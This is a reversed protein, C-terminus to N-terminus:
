DDDRDHDRGDASSGHPVTSPVTAAPATTTPAPTLPTIVTPTTTTTAPKTTTTSRTTTSRAPPASLTSSLDHPESALGIPQSVLRSGAYSIAAALVVGLLALLVVFTVRSPRVSGLRGGPGASGDPVVM